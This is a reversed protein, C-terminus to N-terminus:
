SSVKTTKYNSKKRDAKKIKTKILNCHVYKLTHCQTLHYGNVQRPVGHGHDLNEMTKATTTATNSITIITDHRSQSQSSLSFLNQM